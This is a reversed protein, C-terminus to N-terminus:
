YLVFLGFWTDQHSLLFPTCFGLLVLSNTIVNYIQNFAWLNICNRIVFSHNLHSIFTLHWKHKVWKSLIGYSGFHLNDTIKDSLNLKRGNWASVFVFCQDFTKTRQFEVNASKFLQYSLTNQLRVRPSHWVWKCM